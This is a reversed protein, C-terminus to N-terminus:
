WHDYAHTTPWNAPACSFTARWAHSVRDIGVRALLAFDLSLSKVVTALRTASVTAM